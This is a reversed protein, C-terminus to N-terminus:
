TCYWLNEHVYVSGHKNNVLNYLVFAHIYIFVYIIIYAHVSVYLYYLYMCMCQYEYLYINPTASLDMPQPFVSPLYLENWACKTNWLCHLRIHKCVDLRAVWFHDDAGALCLWLSLVYWCQRWKILEEPFVSIATGQTLTWHLLCMSTPLRGLGICQDQCYAIPFIINLNKKGEIWHFTFTFREKLIRQM